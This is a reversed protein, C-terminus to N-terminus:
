IGSLLMVSTWYRDLQSIPPKLDLKLPLNISSELIPLLEELWLKITEEVLEM